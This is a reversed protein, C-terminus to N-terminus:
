KKRERGFSAEFAAIAEEVSGFAGSREAPDTECFLEVFSDELHMQHKAGDGPRYYDASQVSVKKTEINILCRFRVATTQDLRKWVSLEQYLMM